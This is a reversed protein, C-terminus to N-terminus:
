DLISNELCSLGRARVHIETSLVWKAWEFEQDTPSEVFRIMRSTVKDPILRRKGFSHAAAMLAGRLSANRRPDGRALHSTSRHRRLNRRIRISSQNLVRRGLNKTHAPYGSEGFVEAFQGNLMRVFSAQNQRAEVPQSLSASIWRPDEYPLLSRHFMDTMAPRIRHSQRFGFDLLDYSTMGEFPELQARNEQVFAKFFDKLKPNPTLAANDNVFAPAAKMLLPLHKGSIADGFYGSIVPSGPDILRALCDFLFLGDIPPLLPTAQYRAALSLLRDLDWDLTNPDLVQHRLANRQCVTRAIVVDRADEPGITVCFIRATPTGNLTAGLIGRSDHGGTLPIVIEDRGMISEGIITTLLESEPLHATHDDAAPALIRHLYERALNADPNFGLSLYAYTM